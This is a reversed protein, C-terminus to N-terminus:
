DSSLYLSSNSERLLRLALTVTMSPLVMGVMLSSMSSFMSDISSRSTETPLFSSSISSRLIVVSSLIIPMSILVSIIKDFLIIILRLESAIALGKTVEEIRELMVVSMADFLRNIEVFMILM